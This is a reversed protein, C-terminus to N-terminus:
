IHLSQRFTCEIRPLYKNSQGTSDMSQTTYSCIYIWIWLVGIVSCRGITPELNLRYTICLMNPVPELRSFATKITNNYVSKEMLLVSSKFVLTLDPKPTDARSLGLLRSQRCSM